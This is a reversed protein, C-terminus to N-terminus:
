PAIPLTWDGQLLAYLTRGRSEVDVTLGAIDGSAGSAVEETTGSPLQVAVVKADEPNHPVPGAQAVYAVDASVDLGTPVVNGFAAVQSIHGDTTVQLVRNHHGDTVLFGGAFTQLAYQVGTTIFFRTTPPHEVSWAGIDALVTFSGDDELRYIGVVADGIHESGTPTLVDGGVLTVLVYATDDVFAVDMAGGIGAVQPPLGEAYTSVNGTEPDIRLVAGANGDTVYLAGDPGVTSGSGLGSGFSALETVDPTTAVPDAGVAPSVMVAMAVAALAMVLRRAFSM